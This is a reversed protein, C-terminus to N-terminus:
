KSAILIRSKSGYDVSFYEAASGGNVGIEVYGFSNIYALPRGTGAAGFTKKLAGVNRDNIFINFRSSPLDDCRISTVLNGFHDIYIVSGTIGEKTKRCGARKSRHISGMAPGFEDPAVGLSLYGGVPAFIDRAHFTPSIEGPLYKGSTLNYVAKIERKGLFSFLGNDPGVFFCDETEILLSKRKTGVGPDIVVVHITGPPFYFRSTEVLYQGAAVNFAPVNHSIDIIRVGRNLSLIVGKVIGVYNDGTGFDTTLTIIPYDTNVFAL